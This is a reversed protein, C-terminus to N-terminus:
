GAADDERVQIAGEPCSAVAKEMADPDGTLTVEGQYRYRNYGDEDLPFLDPAMMWCRAHGSCLDADVVVRFTKMTKERCLEAIGTRSDRQSRTVWVSSHAADWPELAHRLAALM